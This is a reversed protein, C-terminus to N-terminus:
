ASEITVVKKLFQVSMFNDVRASPVLMGIIAARAALEEKEHAHGRVEFFEGVQPIMSRYKKPLRSLLQSTPIHKYEPLANLVEVFEPAVRLPFDEAIKHAHNDRLTLKKM